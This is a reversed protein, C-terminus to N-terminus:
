RNLPEASATAPLAYRIAAAMQGFHQANERTAYLPHPKVGHSQM